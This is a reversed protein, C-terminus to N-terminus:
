RRNTKRYLYSVSVLSFFLLLFISDSGLLSGGGGGGSSSDSSTDTSTSYTPTPYTDTVLNSSTQQCTDVNTATGDATYNNSPVLDDYYNCSITNSGDDYIQVQGNNNNYFNNHSVSINSTQNDLAVGYSKSNTINNNSITISTSNDVIIIGFGMHPVLTNLQQFGSGCTQGNSNFKNDQIIMESSGNIYLGNYVNDHIDNGYFNINSSPDVWGGNGLHSNLKIQNLGLNPPPCSPNGNYGLENSTVDINTSNIFKVGNITNNTIINDYIQGNTVNSLYIGNSGLQLLNGFIAFYKDTNSISILNVGADDIQYGSIRYPDGSVGTGPFEKSVFDQNSSIVIQSSIVYSQDGQLPTSQSNTSGLMLTGFLLVFIMIQSRVKM